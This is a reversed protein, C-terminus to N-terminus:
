KRRAEYDRISEELPVATSLQILAGSEKEVLIPGNGALMHSILKTKLYRRSTYFFIWGYDKDLTEENLIIISDGEVQYSSNIYAQVLKRASNKDIM